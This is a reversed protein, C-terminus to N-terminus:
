DISARIDDFLRAFDVSHGAAELAEVAGAFLTVESLAYLTDVCHYRAAAPRVRETRYAQRREEVSLERTGHYARKVYRHRDLKLVHGLKRDVLLGRIPFDL